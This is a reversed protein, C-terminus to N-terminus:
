LEKNRRCNGRPQISLVDNKTTHQKAFLDDISNFLQTALSTRRGLDHHNRIRALQWRFTLISLKLSSYFFSPCNCLLEYIIPFSFIYEGSAHIHFSVAPVNVCANNFRRSHSLSLRNQPPLACTSSLFLM